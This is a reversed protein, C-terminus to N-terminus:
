FSFGWISCRPSSRTTRTRARRTSRSRGRSGRSRSRAGCTPARRAAARRARARDARATDFLISTAHVAPLTDWKGSWGFVLYGPIYALYSVPGYTDGLPNATECRGNTQIATACRARPTPRAASRRPRGRRPLPRVPEPRARDPRRRDRGCYGVDIVNSARVNLGVRFGALFVTAAALVWVPWVSAAARRGTAHARDLACRLSCGSSRRSLRAADGHLRRRPQLVLALGLVLAARAPRANRLSLLRRWDVLGLLFLACFASGSRTATSRAQRRVRGHRRAGDAVRGAPRDVGRHVAGTADDVKGTAIEGAEGSWVKVTWTGHEFTADTTPKPPYRELWDAVKPYALFLQSRRSGRDLRQPKAALPTATVADHATSDDGRRAPVLALASRAVGVLRLASVVLAQQRPLQAADRARDRDGALRDKGLGLWDLFVFLWLQNVLSRSWPSSSSACARSRSTARRTRRVDLPPEM